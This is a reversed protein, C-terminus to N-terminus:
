ALCELVVAMFETALVANIANGSARLIGVDGPHRPALPFVGPKTPRIKGDRCEIWELERWPDLPGSPQEVARGEQGGGRDELSHHNPTRYDRAAPTAWGAMTQLDATGQRTMTESAGTGNSATPTSWGALCLMKTASHLNDPTKGEAQRKASFGTSEADEAKPTPWGTSESESTRLGLVVLACFLRRLPTTEARWTLRYLTSGRGAMRAILKSGLLLTLDGSALSAGSNRGSIGTMMLDADRALKLFPNAHAHDPGFLAITQGDQVARRTPGSASARSSIANPTAQLIPLNFTEFLDTM